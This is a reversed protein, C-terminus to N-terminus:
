NSGGATPLTFLIFSIYDRQQPCLSGAELDEKKYSNHNFFHLENLAFRLDNSRGHLQAIRSKVLLAINIEDM